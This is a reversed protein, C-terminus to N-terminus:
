AAYVEGQPLASIYEDLEARVYRISRGISRWRPGVGASRRNQLTSKALGLYTAAQETTLLAPVIHSSPLTSSPM